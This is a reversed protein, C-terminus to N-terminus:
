LQIYLLVSPQTNREAERERHKPLMTQKNTKTDSLQQEKECNNRERERTKKNEIDQIRKRNITIYKFSHVLIDIQSAHM